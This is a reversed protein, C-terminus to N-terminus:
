VDGMMVGVIWLFSALILIIGMLRLYLPISDPIKNTTLPAPVRLRYSVYYEFIGLVLCIIGIVLYLALTSSDYIPIQTLAVVKDVVQILESSQSGAYDGNAAYIASITYSGPILTSRTLAAKGSSLPVTELPGGNMMFTVAGPPFEQSRYRRITATLTVPQGKVSPNASSALSTDTTYGDVIQTIIESTSGAYPSAGSYVANLFHNGVALDSIFLKAKASQLTTEGLITGADEFIVTGAPTGAGAPDAVIATLTIETGLEAPNPSSALTTITMVGTTTFSFTAWTSINTGAFARVKWYYVTSPQLNPITFTNVTLNRSAVISTFTPDRSIKIEYGTTNNMKNWRFTVTTPVNTDGDPPYFFDPFSDEMVSLYTKEEIIPTEASVAAPFLLIFLVISFMLSLSLINRKM